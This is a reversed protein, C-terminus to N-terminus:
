PSQHSALVEDVLRKVKAADMEAKQSLKAVEAAVSMWHWLMLADGEVRAHTALRNAEYYANREDQAILARADGERRLRLLRRREIWIAIKEFM